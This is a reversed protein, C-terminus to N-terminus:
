KENEKEKSSESVIHGFRFDAMLEAVLRPRDYEHDLVFFERARQLLDNTM